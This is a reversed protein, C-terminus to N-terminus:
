LTQAIRLVEEYTEIKVETREKYRPAKDDTITALDRRHEDIKAKIQGLFVVGELTSQFISVTRDELPKCM